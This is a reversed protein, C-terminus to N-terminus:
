EHYACTKNSNTENNPTKEPLLWPTQDPVRLRNRPAGFEAM